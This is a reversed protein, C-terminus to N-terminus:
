CLGAHLQSRLLEGLEDTTTAPYPFELVRVHAGDLDVWHIEVSSPRLRGLSVGIVDALRTGTTTSVARRLEDQHCHNAHEVSRQLFGRNLVHAPSHFHAVPVRVHGEDDHKGPRSIVVLDVVLVVTEREESCCDCHDRGRSELHGGVTVQAERDTSGVPGLGSELTLLARRRDTAARSLATGPPCSFTPVGGLDQMGLEDLDSLVDGVGDVVLNVGAPCSLISRAAAAIREAEQTADSTTHHDVSTM